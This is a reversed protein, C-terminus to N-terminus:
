FLVFLDSPLIEPLMCSPLSYINSAKIVFLPSGIISFVIFKAFCFVDVSGEGCKM